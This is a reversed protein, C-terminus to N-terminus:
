EKWKDIQKLMSTAWHDYTPPPQQMQMHRACCSFLVPLSAVERVEEERREVRWRCGLGLFDTAKYAESVSVFLKNIDDTHTHTIFHTVCVM